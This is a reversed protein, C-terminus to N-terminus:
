KILIYSIIKPLLGVTGYLNHFVSTSYVIGESSTLRNQRNIGSAELYPRQGEQDRGLKSLTGNRLYFCV